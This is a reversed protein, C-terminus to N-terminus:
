PRVLAWGDDGETDYELNEPVPADDHLQLRPRHPDLVEEKLGPVAQAPEDLSIVPYARESPGARLVAAFSTSLKETYTRGAALEDPSAEPWCASSPVKRVALRSQSGKAEDNIPDSLTGASVKSAKPAAAAVKATPPAQHSPNGENSQPTNAPGSDQLVVQSAPVTTTMVAGSAVDAKRPRGRKRPPQPAMLGSKKVEEIFMDFQVAGPVRGFAERLHYPLEKWDFSEANVKEGCDREHFGTWVSGEGRLRWTALWDSNKLGLTPHTVPMPPPTPRRVTPVSPISEITQMSPEASNTGSGKMNSVHRVNQRSRTSIGVPAAEIPADNGSVPADSATVSEGLSTQDKQSAAQAAAEAAEREALKRAAEELAKQREQELKAAAQAKAEAKAHRAATEANILAESHSRATSGLAPVTFTLILEHLGKADPTDRPAQQLFRRCEVAAAWLPLVYRIQPNERFEIVIIPPRPSPKPYILTSENLGGAEQTSAMAVGGPLSTTSTQTPKSVQARPSPLRFEWFRTGTFIHPGVRVDATGLQILVHPQRLDMNSTLAPPLPCVYAYDVQAHRPKSQPRAPSTQSSPYWTDSTPDVRISFPALLGTMHLLRSQRLSQLLIQSNRISLRIPPEDKELIETELAEQFADFKADISTNAGIENSRREKRKADIRQDRQLSLIEVADDTWDQWSGPRPRKVTYPIRFPHVREQQARRHAGGAPLFSAPPRSFLQEEVADLHSSQALREQRFVDAVDNRPHIRQVSSSSKVGISAGAQLDTISNAAVGLTVAHQVPLSARELSRHPQGRRSEHVAGSASTGVHTGQDLDDHKPTRQHASSAFIPFSNVAPGAVKHSWRAMRTPPLPESDDLQPLKRRKAERQVM